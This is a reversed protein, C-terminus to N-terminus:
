PSLSKYVLTKPVWPSLYEPVRLLLSRYMWPGLSTSVVSSANNPAPDPLQSVVGWTESFREWM